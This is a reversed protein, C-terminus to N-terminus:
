LNKVKNFETFKENEKDVGVNKKERRENDSKNKVADLFASGLLVSYDSSIIKKETLAVYVNRLVVRKGEFIVRIEDALFAPLAGGSNITSYPILRFNKMVTVDANDGILKEVFSKEAVIVPNGSFADKLANGTDLLAKGSVTKEGYTVSIDYLLNRVMRDRTFRSILSLVVYCGVSLAILTLIDVDFYVAGNKYYVANPSIFVNVALMIGAFAFNCLFFAASNKLFDSIKRTKFAVIVMVSMFLTKLILNLLLPINEIFIILSFVGGILSSVLLRVPNRQTGFLASVARLLLYNVMINLVVLIDAYIVTKM